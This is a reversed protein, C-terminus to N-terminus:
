EGGVVRPVWRRLGRGPGRRYTPANLLMHPPDLMAHTQRASMTRRRAGMRGNRTRRLHAFNTPSHADSSARSLSPLPPEDDATCHQAPLLEPAAYSEPAVARASGPLISMSEPKVDRHVVFRAHMWEVASVIDRWIRRLLSESLQTHKGHSNVLLERSAVYELVLVHHTRVTFSAYLRIQMRSPVVSPCVPKTVPGSTCGPIPQVHPIPGHASSWPSRRHHISRSCLPMPFRLPLARTTGAASLRIFHEKRRSQCYIEKCPTELLFGLQEGLLSYTLVKRSVTQTPQCLQERDSDGLEQLARTDQTYTRELATHSWTQPWCGDVIVATHFPRIV